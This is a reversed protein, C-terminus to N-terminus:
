HPLLDAVIKEWIDVSLAILDLVEIILPHYGKVLQRQQYVDGLWADTEESDFFIYAAIPFLILSVKSEYPSDSIGEILYKPVYLTESSTQSKSLPM